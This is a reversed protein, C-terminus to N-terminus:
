KRLAPAKGLWREVEHLLMREEVPKPIYSDAGLSM